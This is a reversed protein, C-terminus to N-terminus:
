GIGVFYVKGMPVKARVLTVLVGEWLFTQGLVFALLVYRRGM